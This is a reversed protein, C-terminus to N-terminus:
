CLSVAAGCQVPDRQDAIAAWRWFTQRRAIWIAGVGMAAAVVVVIDMAAAVVGFASMAVVVLFSLALLM